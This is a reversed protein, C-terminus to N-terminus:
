FFSCILPLTDRVISFYLLIASVLQTEMKNESFQTDQSRSGDNVTKM